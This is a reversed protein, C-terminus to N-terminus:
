QNRCWGPGNPADCYCVSTDEARPCDVPLAGVACGLEFCTPLTPECEVPAADPKITVAADPQPEGGGFYMSCGTTLAVFLLLM